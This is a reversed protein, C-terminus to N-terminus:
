QLIFRGFRFFIQNMYNQITHVPIEKQNGRTDERDGGEAKLNKVSVEGKEWQM